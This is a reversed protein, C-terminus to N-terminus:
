YKNEQTLLTIILGIVSLEVMQREIKKLNVARVFGVGHSIFIFLGGITKTSKDCLPWFCQISIASISPMKKKIKTEGLAFNSVGLQDLPSSVQEQNASCAM